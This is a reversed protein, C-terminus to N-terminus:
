ARLAAELAVAYIAAGGQQSGVFVQVVVGDKDLVFTTPTSSVGYASVVTGANMGHAWTTGYQQRYDEIRPATDAQGVFNVDVSVFRVRANYSQYLQVLVPAEQQCSGCDIDMFEVLAPAGRHESLRVTGGSSTDLVFDPAVQGVAPGTGRGFPNFAVLVFFLAVIIAIPVVIRLGGRTVVPRSRPGPRAAARRREPPAIADLDVTAHPHQNHVLREINELKVSVGCEPCKV